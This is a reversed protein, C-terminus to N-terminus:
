LGDVFKELVKTEEDITKPNCLSEPKLKLYALNGNVIRAPMVYKESVISKSPDFLDANIRALDMITHILGYLDYPRDLYGRMVDTDRTKKYDESFWLM